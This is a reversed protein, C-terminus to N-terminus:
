IQSSPLAPKFEAVDIISTTNIWVGNPFPEVENFTGKKLCDYFRGTDAIWAANSLFVFAGKIQECKGTHIHTVTRVLYNKDIEFPSVFTQFQFLAALEKAQKITLDDLNM